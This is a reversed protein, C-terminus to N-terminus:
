EPATMVALAAERVDPDPHARVQRVIALWFEPWGEAEGAVAAFGLAVLPAPIVVDTALRRVDDIAIGALGHRLWRSLATRVELALVPRTGLSAAFLVQDLVDAHQWEVAGAALKIAERPMEAALDAALQREFARHAASTRDDALLEVVKRIRQRAPLDRDPVADFADVTSLLRTVVSRLPTLDSACSSILAGLAAQWTATNALDATLDALLDTGGEDWRSWLPLRSLAPEAIGPERRVAVTRVLAAYRHRHRAAIFQPPLELVSLAVAQEGGAAASLLDWATEEDLFWRCASVIARKVDRHTDPWIATLEAPAGPAQHEALLRVAEKRSTVKKGRLVPALLASLKSPSTFRACRTAAYVAVRARDTDAFALLEPLVDGPEDTWALAGMAAEALAVEGDHLFTRLVATTGPVGGLRLVANVRTGLANDSRAIVELEAAYATIQRPMWLHFCRDYFPVFSVSTVWFRGRVSQGTVLDLLDTRRTSVAQQVEHLTIASIDDFLVAEVRSDRTRVPALWLGIARRAVTEQAAFRAQGIVDQLEALDWARRGLGVALALAMSYEDRRADATIRPMLVALVQQEAGRPLSRYLGHLSVHRHQEGLRGMGDLGAEVLRADGTVAGQRILTGALERVASWTSYSSDRAQTADLMLKTLLPAESARFLWAPVKALATLATARVPDQENPLRTLTALVAAFVEPDRSAAAARLYLPYAEAREEATARKTAELLVPGAEDWSLRATVALRQSPSDAVRRLGLLRRAQVARDATPLEDLVEIPVDPQEGTAGRYVAARRSPPLSHLFHRLRATTLRRAVAVLAAEDVGGLRSWFARSDPQHAKGQALIRAVREPAVRALWPPVHVSWVHPLVREFLDLVREPLHASASRVGDARWSWITKWEQTPAADLEAEVLDLLAAPHRKGIASWNAAAHELERLPPASCVSLLGAAEDDGYRERVFPLLADALETAQQGRVLQYLRRRTAVAMDPLRELFAEAPLGLRVAARLASWLVSTERAGLERRVHDRHEAIAAMQVALRREFVARGALDALVADLEPTGALARATTAIHRQRAPAPLPDIATLM